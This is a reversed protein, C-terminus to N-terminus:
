PEVELVGANNVFRAGGVTLADLDFVGDAIDTLNGQVTGLTATASAVAVSAAAAVAAADSLAVQATDLVISQYSLRTKLSPM